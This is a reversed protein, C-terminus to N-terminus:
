KFSYNRKNKKTRKNKKRKTRKYRRKSVGGNYTEIPTVIESANPPKPPMEAEEFLSEQTPYSVDEEAPSEQHMDSLVAKESKSEEAPSEQSMNSMAAETPLHISRKIITIQPTETVIEFKLLNVYLDLLAAKNRNAPVGVATTCGHKLLGGNELISQLFTTALKRIRIAQNSCFLSIEICKEIDLGYDSFKIKDSSNKCDVDIIIFALVNKFKDNSIFFGHMGSDQLASLELTELSEAIVDRNCIGITELMKEYQPYNDSHIHLMDYMKGNFEYQM